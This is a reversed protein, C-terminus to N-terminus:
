FLTSSGMSSFNHTNTLGRGVHTNLVSTTDKVHILCIRLAGARRELEEMRDKSLPDKVSSSTAISRYQNAMLGGIEVERSTPNRTHPAM